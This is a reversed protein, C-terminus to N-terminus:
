KADEEPWVIAILEGCKPCCADKTESEIERHCRPCELVYVSHDRM